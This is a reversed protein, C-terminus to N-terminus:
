YKNQVKLVDVARKRKLGLASPLPSAETNQHACEMRWYDNLAFERINVAANIDREHSAGCGSCVWERDSLTLSDNISDCASCTKSSPCFKDVILFNKGKWEAKYRIFTKFMGWGSDSIARALSRNSVMNKVQLDEMCITDFRNTIENSAKHLFDSRQNAIKEHLKAVRIRFKNRRKSGKKKHSLNRSMWKLRILSKNLYKPHAFVTGDSCALFSKLGLDIGVSTRKDIPKKEPLSLNNEILISVFYKESPTKSITATRINGKFPRHLEIKIGDDFKPLWLMGKEVVVNQPCSFSQRNSKSKFCPFGSRGKFFNHFSTDLNKLSFQLSQSNVEKLWIFEKKLDKLQVQLDFRSVKAKQGSYAMQKAELALNYVLRACGFHKSLLETQKNTPYIRYKYSKLM